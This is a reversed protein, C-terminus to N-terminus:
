LLILVGAILWVHKRTKGRSRRKPMGQVAGTPTEDESREEDSHAAPLYDALAKVKDVSQWRDAGPGYVRTSPELEGSQLKRALVSLSIPGKQEGGHIYYWENGSTDVQVKGERAAGVSEKLEPVERVDKWAGLEKSFVRDGAVVKAQEILDRLENLEVPGRRKGGHKYYWLGGRTAKQGAKLAERLASVESATRWEETRSSWVRDEPGIRGAQAAKILEARSVPGYRRGSRVYYWKDRAKEARDDEGYEDVLDSFQDVVSLKKWGDLDASWVLDDPKAEGKKIMGKIQRSSHPGSQGERGRLYWGRGPRRRQLVEVNGARKWEGTFASYVPVNRDLQGSRLAKRLRAFTYPGRAKGEWQIYWAASEPGAGKGAKAGTEKPIEIRKGCSCHTRQGAMSPPVKYSAGCQECRVEPM